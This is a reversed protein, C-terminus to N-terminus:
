YCLYLSFLNQRCQLALIFEKLDWLRVPEFRLIGIKVSHIWNFVGYEEVFLRLCLLFFRQNCIPPCLVISGCMSSLILNEFTKPRNQMMFLVVVTPIFEGCKLHPKQTLLLGPCMSGCCELVFFQVHNWCIAAFVHNFNTYFIDWRLRPFLPQRRTYPLMDSYLIRSIATRSFLLLRTLLM